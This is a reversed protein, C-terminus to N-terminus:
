RVEASVGFTETVRAGITDLFASLIDEETTVFGEPLGLEENNDNDPDTENPDDGVVPIQGLPPVINPTESLGVDLVGVQILLTTVTALAGIAIVITLAVILNRYPNKKAM